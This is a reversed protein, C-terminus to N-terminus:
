GGLVRLFEPAKKRCVSGARNQANPVGIVARIVYLDGSAAQHRYLDRAGSSIESFSAKGYNVSAICGRGDNEKRATKWEM